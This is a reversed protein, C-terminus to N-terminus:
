RIRYPPQHCSQQFHAMWAPVIVPAGRAEFAIRNIVANEIVTVLIRGGRNEIRVDQFLGTAILAKYAEDIEHPGLRGDPGAKFYSRITSAEVRRNGEVVISSAPQAYAVGAPVIAPAVGFVIGGLAFGVVSLGRLM